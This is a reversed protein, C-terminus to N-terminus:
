VGVDRCQRAAGTLVAEMPFSNGKPLHWLAPPLDEWMERLDSLTVLSALPQAPALSAVETRPPMFSLTGQRAGDFPSIKAFTNQINCPTISLNPHHHYSHKPPVQLSLGVGVLEKIEGTTLFCYFSAGGGWTAWPQLGQPQQPGLPKGAAWLEWGGAREWAARGKDM